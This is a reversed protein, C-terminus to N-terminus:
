EDPETLSAWFGKKEPPPSMTELKAKLLHIQGEAEAAEKQKKKKRLRDRQQRLEAIALRVQAVEMMRDIIPVKMPELFETVTRQDQLESMLQKVDSPTENAASAAGALGLAALCALVTRSHM